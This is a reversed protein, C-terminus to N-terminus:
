NEDDFLLKDTNLPHFARTAHFLNLRIDLYKSCNFFFHEADEIANCVPSPCLHNNFLDHNLTSCNNRM